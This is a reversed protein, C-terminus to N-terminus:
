AALSTLYNKRSAMLEGGIPNGQRLLESALAKIYDDKDLCLEELEIVRNQLIRCFENQIGSTKKMVIAMGSCLIIAGGAVILEKEHNAVWTKIDNRKIM